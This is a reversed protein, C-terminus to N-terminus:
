REAQVRARLFTEIAQPSALVTARESESLGGYREVLRTGLRMRVEPELLRARSLFSLILEVDGASLRETAPAASAASEGTAPAMYKDLDFREERVLLTGALLDGLRRHQRTLLMSICGTAYLGPLFDVVRCLNRVASELPGVPSGDVRVVRIGLLRKGPTQGGMLVEALTWYMWQTAFLGVVVLTQLLGGLGRLLGVVDSVLLSFTFYSVMWFLFLLALDVLYALCRYGIGAVPLSLAVREPTAVALSPSAASDM